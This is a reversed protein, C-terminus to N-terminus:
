FSARLLLLSAALHDRMAKAALDPNRAEIAAVLSSHCRSIKGDLKGV